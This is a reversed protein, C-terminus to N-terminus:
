FRRRLEKLYILPISENNIVLSSMYVIETISKIKIIPISFIQKITEM